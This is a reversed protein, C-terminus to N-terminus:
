IISGTEKFIKERISESVFSNLSMKEESALLAAKQHLDPSIRVNFSGKYPKEPQIGEYRCSNLYTDISDRFDNELEKGTKGKM